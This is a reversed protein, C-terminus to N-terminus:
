AARRVVRGRATLPVIAMVRGGRVTFRWAAPSDTLSGRDIVRIRGHVLVDEDGDEELRHADVEIRAEGRPGITAWVDPEILQLVRRVDGSAKSEFLLRVVEIPSRVSV